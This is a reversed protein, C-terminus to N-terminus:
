FVPQISHVTIELRETNNFIVLRYFFAAIIMITGYPAPFKQRASSM